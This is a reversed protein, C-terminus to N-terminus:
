TSWTQRVKKENLQLWLLAIITSANDIKGENVWHYAEKVSVIHLRIDEGESALGHIGKAQSSDVQACFLYIRETSGGPSVWHQSIPLLNHLSLGTEEQTEKKAVQEFSEKVDIVGAVIELIWPNNTKMVTGVRFQEILVLQDRQPDFLLVGVAEGREFVERSVPESWGGNFLRYQVKLCDLQFHGQYVRRQELIEVDKRTFTPQM